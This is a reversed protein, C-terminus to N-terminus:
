RGGQVNTGSTAGTRNMVALRKGLASDVAGAIAGTDLVLRMSRISDNLGDIRSNLNYLTDVIRNTNNITTDRLTSIGVTIAGLSVPDLNVIGTIELAATGNFWAPMSSEDLVMSIESDLGGGNKFEALKGELATIYAQMDAEGDATTLGLINGM